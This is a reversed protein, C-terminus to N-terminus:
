RPLGKTMREDWYSWLFTADEIAWFSVDSASEFSKRIFSLNRNRVFGLFRTPKWDDNVVGIEKMKRRIPSYWRAERQEIRSILPQINAATTVEVIVVERLKLDLAVFDPCAGGENLERDYAVNYQPALFVHGDLTLYTAIDHEHDSM